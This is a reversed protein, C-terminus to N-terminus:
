AGRHTDCADGLCRAYGRYRDMSARPLAPEDTRDFVVGDAVHFLGDTNRHDGVAVDITGFLRSRDEVMGAGIGHHDPPRRLTAWPNKAFNPMIKVMPPMQRWGLDIFDALQNQPMQCIVIRKVAVASAHTNRALM